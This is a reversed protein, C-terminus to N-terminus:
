IECDVCAGIAMTVARDRPFLKYVEKIHGHHGMRLTKLRLEEQAGKNAHVQQWYKDAASMRPLNTSLTM